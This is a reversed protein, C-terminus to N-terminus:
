LAARMCTPAKTVSNGHARLGDTRKSERFNRYLFTKGLSKHPPRTQRILDIVSKEVELAFHNGSLACSLQLVFQQGISKLM